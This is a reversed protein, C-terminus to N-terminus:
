YINLEVEFEFDKTFYNNEDVYMEIRGECNSLTDEEALEFTEDNDNVPYIGIECVDNSCIIEAIKANPFMDEIEEESLTSLDIEDGTECDYLVWPILDGKCRCSLTNPSYDIDGQIDLTLVMPQGDKEYSVKLWDPTYGINNKSKADLYLRM